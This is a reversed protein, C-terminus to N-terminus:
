RLSKLAKELKILRGNKFAVISADPFQKLAKKHLDLIESFSNSTGTLYTFAGSAEYEEPQFGKFKESDLPIRNESSILHVKFIIDGAKEGSANVYVKRGLDIASFSLYREPNARIDTMLLNLNETLLNVSQYLEDDNFLRGATNDTSNLKTLLLNIKETSEHITGLLPSVTIQALTDSFASLNQLTNEFEGSNRNLVTTITDLNTIVNKMSEKESSVIEQLDATTREINYITQNINEFSESLNRRADENLIVTLVTIASDITGLLEEAKNKIPLVQMSVQEKLDREVDGPITDNDNYFESEESLNIRITRTGMIDSSAIQAVSNVPIKVSSDIIVTVLLRGSNDPLFKIEKVHGIKFGSLIVENSGSLGDVRNYIVHYENSKKFIDNGKLYSLGWILATISLVILIGLRTYKSVKM